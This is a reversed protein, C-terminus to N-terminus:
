VHTNPFASPLHINEKNEERFCCCIRKTNQRINASIDAAQSSPHITSSPSLLPAPRPSLSEQWVFINLEQSRHLSSSSSDYFLGRSKEYYSRSLTTLLERYVKCEASASVRLQPPPLLIDAQYYRWSDVIVFDTVNPGPKLLSWYYYSSKQHHHQTARHQHCSRFYLTQKFYKTQLLSICSRTVQNGTQVSLYNLLMSHDVWM